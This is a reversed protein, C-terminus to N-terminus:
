DRNRRPPEITLSIIRISGQREARDRKPTIMSTRSQLRAWDVQRPPRRRVAPTHPAANAGQLVSRSRRAYRRVPM